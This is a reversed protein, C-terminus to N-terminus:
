IEETEQRMSGVSDRPLTLDPRGLMKRASDTVANMDAEWITRDVLRVRYPYVLVV